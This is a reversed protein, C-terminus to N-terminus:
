WSSNINRGKEELIESLIVECRRNGNQFIISGNLFQPMRLVVPVESNRRDLNSTRLTKGPTTGSVLFGSSEPYSLNCHRYVFFDTDHFHPSRHILLFSCSLSKRSLLSWFVLVLIRSITLTPARRLDLWGLSSQFLILSDRDVLPLFWHFTSHLCYSKSKDVVVESCSGNIGFTQFHNWIIEICRKKNYFTQKRKSSNQGWPMGGAVRFKCLREDLANLTETNNLPPCICTWALILLFLLFFFCVFLCVYM